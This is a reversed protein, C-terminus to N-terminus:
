LTLIDFTVTFALLFSFIIFVLIIDTLPQFKKFPLTFFIKVMLFSMLILFLIIIFKSFQFLVM